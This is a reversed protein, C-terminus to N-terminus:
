LLHKNIGDYIIFIDPYTHLANKPSHIRLIIGYLKCNKLKLQKAVESFTDTFWDNLAFSVRNMTFIEGDVYQHKETALRENLLYDEQLIYILQKAGM